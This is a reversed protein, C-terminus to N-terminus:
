VLAPVLPLCLEIRLGGRGTEAQLSGGAAAVIRRPIALGLRQRLTRGRGETNAAGIGQEIGQRPSTALVIVAERDRDRADVM